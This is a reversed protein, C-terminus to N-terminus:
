AITNRTKATVIVLNLHPAYCDVFLAKPPFVQVGAQVGSYEGRVHSLM